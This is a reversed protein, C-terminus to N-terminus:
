GIPRYIDMLRNANNKTAIDSPYAEFNNVIREIRNDFNLYSNSYFAILIISLQMRESNGVPVEEISKYYNLNFVAERPVVIRYYGRVVSDFWVLGLDHVLM